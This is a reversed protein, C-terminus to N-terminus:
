IYEDEFAEAEKISRNIDTEAHKKLSEYLRYAPAFRPIEQLAKEAEDRMLIDEPFPEGPCGRKLGTTASSYLASVANDLLEKGHQKAKDLFRNVFVRQEFVFNSHSESLIQSIIRIDDPTSVDIWDQILGLSDGDLPSYMMNFLECSGHKFQHNKDFNTKMWQVVQPFLLYYDASERFRLPVHLHPGHNCPRYHWDDINAAHEVRAMFFASAIQAHHRSVNSLFIGIWYEDLEPIPMLKEIFYKVDKESLLQFSILEDRHFLNLVDNAVQSSLGIDVYKLLEIALKKNNQAINRVAEIGNIVVWRDKSSLVDRLLALDEETYGDDKLNISRYAQGVAACLEPLETKIFKRAINLGYAHDNSMLKSLAIGAFQSTRSDTYQLANEATSQALANSSQLLNGYLFYPSTSGGNFNQEIDALIIELFARLKEGDPYAVFLDNYLTKFYQEKEKQESSFNKFLEGYGNIFGMTTRFELSQPFSDVIRKALAKTEGNAYNAHWSVSRALKILVLSALDKGQVVGEIKELTKVFEATWVDRSETSIQSNFLGMPYRLCEGIFQAALVAVKTNTYSLLNITADIVKNRLASVASSSVVFPEFSFSRGNSTTTHGETKMVGNLVDFPTYAYKWSTEQDLLSLGFEVVADNYEIPKNPEVACLESLIRVAHNPHRHLVRNDTKGLEWLCECARQLYKLNYAAHKILEPLDRLYAGEQILQEAFDLARGPQYYAVSAVASIHPDHYEDAPKLQRWVGDLLSSNSPDGNAKRWDLKGLNVLVHEIYANGVVEFVREAYGTSSGNVGICTQEIIYDALLDPSLRYKGGRKFLIGADTLLRVLKNTEPINLGEVKEVTQALSSDEPHFPQILAIVNLLKKISEADSKSGVHGAIIDQFKGFLTNRFIDENKALELSVNEKAVVQAGIVTFLPCDLTLRAINEAAGAPGDFAELVQKALQTAQELKLPNLKIEAIRERALAFINAQGKIYDLGYPRFSLLLTANNGPISAYQFLLQLDDRDHADDVILLKSGLGLDELSKNTVEETPSLLRIQVANNTNEFNEVAQKLVRSKGSGGSGTLFIARIVPNLLSNVIAETEKERGVLQWQHSFIKQEGTFAEFFQTTTQWPGAETEGLLALRQGRFCTDVLRIQQDKSLHQRIIRSVDERDWIDWDDYERIAQRAQPSAVRTLLLHKKTAVRTHSAVATHVKKPGFDDVRKCQFTFYTEDPFIVDVDLGDQTHGQGGARHVNATSYMESLFYLCFREFSDPNLADIPFPQDFTAVPTRTTYGAAGLLEALDANLASALQPIQKDRPRSAGSEWRSITQQSTKVLGALDSQQALGAKLRLQLLLDGFAKYPHPNVVKM